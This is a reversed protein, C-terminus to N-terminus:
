KELQLLWAVANVNLMVARGTATGIKNVILKIKKNECIGDALLIEDSFSTLFNKNIM